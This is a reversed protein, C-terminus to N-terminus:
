GKELLSDQKEVIATSDLGSDDINEFLYYEM